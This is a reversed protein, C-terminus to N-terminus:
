KKFVFFKYGAFHWIATVFAAIIVSLKIWIAPLVGFLPGTIQTLYYFIGVDIVLGLLTIYFFQIIEQRINEKEHKAFAWYKNGWYKIITAVLFSIGKFVIPNFIVFFSFVWVLAEYLKLDLVTILAGVLYHKAAQFVFLMRRGILYSIWLCFLTFFPFVIWLIIKYLLDIEIGWERLFDGFLFGIVRGIILAFIVDIVKM